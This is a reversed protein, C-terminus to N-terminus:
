VGVEPVCGQHLSPQRETGVMDWTEHCTPIPTYRRKAWCRITFHGPRMWSQHLWPKRECLSSPAADSGWDGYDSFPGQALGPGAYSQSRPCTM